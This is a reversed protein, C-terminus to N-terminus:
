KKVISIIETCITNVDKDDCTIIYDSAQKYLSERRKFLTEKEELDNKTWLPRTEDAELRKCIESFAVDLYIITGKKRMEDINEQKEVVGGGTSIIGANCEKLANTELERFYVEGEEKFIDQIMRKATHEIYTDTDIYSVDLQSSLAEGITSKGSGMFGILYYTSM